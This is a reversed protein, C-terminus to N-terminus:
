PAGRSCGGSEFLAPFASKCKEIFELVEKDGALEAATLLSKVKLDVISRPADPSCNLLDLFRYKDGADPDRGKLFASLLEHRRVLAVLKKEDKRSHHQVIDKGLATLVRDRNKRLWAAGAITLIWGDSEVDRKCDGEVLRGYKVKKADELSCKTVFKDPWNKTRYKPLIWSFQSPSMVLWREAVEETHVRREAGGLEGLAVIVVDVNSVKMM